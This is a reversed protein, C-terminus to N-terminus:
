NAPNLWGSKWGSSIRLCGQESEPNFRGPNLIIQPLGIKTVPNGAYIYFSYGFELLCIGINKLPTESRAVMTRARQARKLHWCSNQHVPHFWDCRSTLTFIPSLGLPPLCLYGLAFGQTLPTVLFNSNQGLSIRHFPAFYKKFTFHLIYFSSSSIGPLKM